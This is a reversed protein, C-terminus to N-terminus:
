FLMKLMFQLQRPTGMGVPTTNLPLYIIGFDAASSLGDPSAYMPRNFINFAEARFQLQLHETVPIRKSVGLDMQWAGPGRLFNRPVDGFGPRGLGPPCVGGPYLPDATGPTCFAAPNFNRGALYLPQGPVLNPRQENTNGDPGTASTTLDVPFGTRATFNTSLSWSGFMARL